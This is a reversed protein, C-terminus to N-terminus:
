RLGHKWLLRYLHARDIGTSAAAVRVNNNHHVLLRTLYEREFANNWVERALKIPVTPDIDAATTAKVAATAIAPALDAPEGTVLSRELYNRLERVNGPWPHRALRGLSERSTLNAKVAADGRLDGLIADVLIPLDDTRERLPPLLVEVVALRYFLDSRFTRRDVEARLDRNTAAIVRVDVSRYDNSGIRKVERKALARLLKPQLDLPLEGIEDLFITGGSAAEFAGIRAHAASTFAGREHGFLESELLHPPTAGCDVVIFPGDRRPSADRVAEAIVEKGTGTEGILLVTTETAAVQALQAFIRRMAASRGVAAGFHEDGSLPIRIRQDGVEFRFRTSGITVVAGARLFADLIPVDDISTGNRSALDRIRARGRDRTVECHLRSVAPDRVQLDAIEATGIIIRETFNHAVEPDSGLQVLRM